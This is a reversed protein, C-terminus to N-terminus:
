GILYELSDYSDTKSGSSLKAIKFRHSLSLYVVKRMVVEGSSTIIKNSTTAKSPLATPSPPQRGFAGTVQRQETPPIVIFLEQQRTTFPTGAKATDSQTQTTDAMITDGYLTVHTGTTRETTLEQTPPYAPEETIPVM